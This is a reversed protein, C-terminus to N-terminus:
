FGEFEDESDDDMFIERFLDRNEPAVQELIAENLAIDDMQNAMNEDVVFLVCTHNHLSCPIEGTEIRIM